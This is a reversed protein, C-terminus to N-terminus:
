FAACTRMFVPAVSLFLGIQARGFCCGPSQSSNPPATGREAICVRGFRTQGRAVGNIAGTISRALARTPATRPRYLPSGGVSQAARGHGVYFRKAGRKLLLELSKRVMVPITRSPRSEPTAWVRSAAWFFFAALRWITPWCTAARCFRRYRVPPTVRRTFCSAARCATLISRSIM